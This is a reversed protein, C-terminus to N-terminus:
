DADYFRTFARVQDSLGFERRVREMACTRIAVLKEVPAHLVETIKVALRKPQRKPVVWGTREHLVNEPLGEADSVICLLGMAQAELVANCFGESVSYQLYIDTDEMASRVEAPSKKGDFKVKDRIGLQHAAFVLREYQDGTGILTYRFDIGQRDLLALAELTYELGKVWTLRAITLLRLPRQFNTTLPKKRSFLELNIAPTIKRVPVDISLGHSYAGLVLAESITHVKDMRQWLLRYCDPHKLPYIAIDYGRLSVAMRAGVARATNERRLGMTAFGFHLWDLRHSLIRSNLFLNELAERLSRGSRRDLRFFRLAVKPNILLLRCLELAMAAVQWPLFRYVRPHLIVPCFDFSDHSSGVFLVVDHGAQMLGSIKALFFTESYAPTAPLVLGIRLIRNM